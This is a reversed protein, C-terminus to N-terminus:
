LKKFECITRFDCYRCSFPEPTPPFDSHLIAEMREEMKKLFADRKEAKLPEISVTKWDLVYVYALSSVVFGQNELAIQYLYLQERDEAELTDKAQGTKYDFVCVTGDSCRDVRDIKGKLSHKGM